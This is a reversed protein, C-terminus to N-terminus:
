TLGVYFKPPQRDSRLVYVLHKTPSMLVRRLLSFVSAFVALPRRIRDVTKAHPATKSSRCPDCCRLIQQCSQTFRYNASRRPM